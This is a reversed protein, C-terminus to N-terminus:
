EKGSCGQVLVAHTYCTMCGSPTIAFDACAWFEEPYSGNEGCLYRDLEIWDHKDPACASPWSDPEFEEYGVHKCSNGTDQCIMLM